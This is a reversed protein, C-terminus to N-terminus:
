AEAARVASDLDAHCSAVSTMGSIRLITDVGRGTVITLVRHANGIRAEFLVRVGASAFYTVGSLDVVVARGASFAEDVSVRLLHVNSIDVEGRM